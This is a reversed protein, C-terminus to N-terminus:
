SNPIQVAIYAMQGSGKKVRLLLADGSKHGEMISKLQKPSSIKQRDAELIVDGKGLNRNFAESFRTVDTVIVGTELSLEKKEDTNLSRVSLGIKDLSYPKSASERDTSEEDDSGKEADRSALKEEARAKLTVKKDFSDGDRFIKLTVADGPHKRAIYSQLESPSNMATGDISLIVDGEKIGAAIAAGDKVVTQVWVGKADSLKLAKAATEDIPGITIGLYGRMIKGHRILDEAVARALNIPIAFGYGQYRANTTAIASNIGIVEGHLNVLPGGSNGPNIAADTQIFDEIGYGKDDHIIGLNNRGVASIIGATVTGQLGLPNGIALVWEGIEMDDSNGLAATPLDHGDIKIVALDTSPDTGIIKAKAKHTNTLNVDVMHEDADEVVHNNTLIYGDPSIIVGSGAAQMQEQEPVKFDPGFFHFFENMDNSSSKAKTTVTISVVTPSVAKSVQIFAKSLAKPDFDVDKIPAPAGLKVQPDGAFGPTIGGHFNSVLVAGFIIGIFILFIAALISKKNMGLEKHSM